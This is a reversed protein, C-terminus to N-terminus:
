GPVQSRSSAGPRMLRVSRTTVQRPTLARAHPLRDARDPRARDRGAHHRPRVGPGVDLHRLDLAGVIPSAARAEARVNPVDGTVDFLAPGGDRTAQAPLALGAIMAILAGRRPM